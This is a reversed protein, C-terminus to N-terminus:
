KTTWQRVLERVRDHPVVRGAAVDAQGRRIGALIEIEQTIQELSADDPLRRVADIVIEKNSM